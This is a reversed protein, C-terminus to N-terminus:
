VKEPKPTKKRKEKTLHTSLALWNCAPDTPTQTLSHTLYLGQFSCLNLTAVQQFHSKESSTVWQFFCSEKGIGLPAPRNKNGICTKLYRLVERELNGM